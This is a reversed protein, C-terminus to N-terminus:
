TNYLTTSYQKNSEVSMINSHTYSRLMIRPFFANKTEGQSERATMAALMSAMGYKWFVPTFPYARLIGVLPATSLHAGHAICCQRQKTETLTSVLITYKNKYPKILRGKPVKVSRTPHFSLCKVQLYDQQLLRCDTCDTIKHTLKHSAGSFIIYKCVYVSCMYTNYM